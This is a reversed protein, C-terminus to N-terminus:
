LLESLLTGKPDGSNISFGGARPYSLHFSLSLTQAMVKQSLGSHPSSSIMLHLNIESLDQLICGKKVEKIIKNWLITKSGVRLRLNPAKRAVGKIPGRYGIDFGRTFGEYLFQIEKPPYGSEILLNRFKVADVPTVVTSLDFNEVYEAHETKVESFVLLNNQTTRHM